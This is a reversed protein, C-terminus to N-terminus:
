QGVYLWTDKLKANARLHQIYSEAEKRNDFKDAFVRVRGDNIVIGKNTLEPMKIDQMYQNAQKETVFSGIIAYYIKQNQMPETIVTAPQTEAVVLQTTKNAIATEKTIEVEVTPMSITDAQIDSMYINYSAIECPIMSATFSRRDVEQLPMSVFLILCAAAVSVGVARILARSVPMSVVRRPKPKIQKEINDPKEKRVYQTVPPLHFPYLGYPKLGLLSSNRDPEFFLQGDDGKKLSGIKEFHVAGEENIVNYLAAIDNKLAIQAQKFTMDYMQIYSEPLLGDQHILAPNFVIEKHPPSFRHQGSEYIAPGSHLVFGGFEPIIVCDNTLLLREIHTSIRLVLCLYM